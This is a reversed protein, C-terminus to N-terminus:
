FAAITSPNNFKARRFRKIAQNDNDHSEVYKKILGRVEVGDEHGYLAHAPLRMGM